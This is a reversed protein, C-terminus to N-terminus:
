PSLVDGCPFLAPSLERNADNESGFGIRIVVADFSYCAVYFFFFIVAADEQSSLLEFEILVM